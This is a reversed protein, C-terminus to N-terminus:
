RTIIEADGSDALRHTPNVTFVGIIKPHTTLFDRGCQRLLTNQGVIM